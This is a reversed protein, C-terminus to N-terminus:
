VVSESHRSWYPWRRSQKMSDGTESSAPHYICMASEMNTPIATHKNCIYSRTHMHMVGSFQTGKVKM